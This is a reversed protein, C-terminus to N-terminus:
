LVGISCKPRQGQFPDKQNALFLDYQQQTCLANKSSVTLTRTDLLDANTKSGVAYFSSDDNVAICVNESTHPLKKSMTQKFRNADWCHIFGNSSIVAIETKNQNFCM